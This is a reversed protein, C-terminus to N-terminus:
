AAQFRALTRVKSLFMELWVRDEDEIRGLYSWLAETNHALSSGVHVRVSCQTDSEQEILVVRLVEEPDAEFGGLFSLFQPPDFTSAGWVLHERLHAENHFRCIITRM